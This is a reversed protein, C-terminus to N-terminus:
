RGQQKELKHNEERIFIERRIKHHKQGEKQWFFAQANEEVKSHPM